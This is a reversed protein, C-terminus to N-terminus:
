VGGTIIGNEEVVLCHDDKGGFNDIFVYIEPRYIIEKPLPNNGPLQFIAQYLLEELIGTEDKNLSRIKYL